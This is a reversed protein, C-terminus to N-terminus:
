VGKGCIYANLTGAGSTRTYVMRIYPASTEIFEVYANGAAGAPAVAPSTITTWTGANTVNGNNDQAYNLSVQFTITGVPAGTWIAQFGINDQYKIETVASTISAAMSGATVIHTPLLVNYAM